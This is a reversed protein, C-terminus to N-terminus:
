QHTTEHNDGRKIEEILEDIAPIALQCQPNLQNLIQLLVRPLTLKNRVRDLVQSKNMKLVGTM